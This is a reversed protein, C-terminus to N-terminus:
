FNLKDRKIFDSYAGQNRLEALVAQFSAATAAQADVLRSRSAKSAQELLSLTDTGGYKEGQLLSALHKAAQSAAPVTQRPHSAEIHGLLEDAAAVLATSHKRKMTQSTLQGL